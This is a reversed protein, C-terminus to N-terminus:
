LHKMPTVDQRQSVCRTMLVDRRPYAKTGMIQSKTLCYWQSEGLVMDQKVSIVECTPNMIRVKVTCQRSADILCPAVVASYERALYLSPEILLQTDLAMDEQRDVFADVIMETMPPLAYHDASRVKRVMTRSGIQLVPISKGRLVMVGQSLILDAPGGPDFQLVDAGLLVEDALEAVAITKDSMLPGLDIEFVASGYAKMLRGDATAPSSCKNLPPRNTEPIREYVDRSMMTITSGTDVTFNAEIGQVMGEIYVGSIYSIGRRAVPEGESVPDVPFYEHLVREYIEVDDATFVCFIVREINSSGTALIEKVTGVALHAAREKPFGFHGTSICPFVITQLNREECISFCSQYCRILEEDGSRPGVTHIVHKAPLGHAGTIKAEGVSCGNLTACEDRLGPGAVRHIAGDVGGGGLLSSKAANVVSDVQLATIDGRWLSIKEALGGHWELAEGLCREKWTPVEKLLTIQGSHPRKIGDDREVAVANLVRSKVWDIAVTTEDSEDSM